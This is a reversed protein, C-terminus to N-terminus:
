ITPFSKLHEKNRTSSSKANVFKASRQIQKVNLVRHYHIAVFLEFHFKWNSSITLHMAELSNHKNCTANMDSLHHPTYKLSLLCNVFFYKFSM